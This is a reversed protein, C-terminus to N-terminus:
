RLRLTIIFTVIVAREVLDELENTRIRWAEENINGHIRTIIKREFTRLAKMEESTM